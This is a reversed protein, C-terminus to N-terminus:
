QFLEDFDPENRDCYDNFEDMTACPFYQPQALDLQMPILVEKLRQLFEKDSCTDVFEGITDLLLEDMTDTIVMRDADRHNMIFSALNEIPLIDFVYEERQSGHYVYGCHLTSSEAIQEMEEESIM